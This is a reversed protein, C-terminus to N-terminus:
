KYKFKINKILQKRFDSEFWKELIHKQKLFLDISQLRKMYDKESISFLYDLLDSMSKYYKLNIFCSEPIFESINAAGSYIPVSRAKLCDFLKETIYGPAIANEICFVYKFNSLVEIKKNEPIEGKYVKYKRFGFINEKFSFPDRKDWGRGLLTFDINKHTEFYEVIDIRKKYNNQRYINMLSLVLPSSKKSLLMGLFKRKVKHNNERYNNLGIELKPIFFKNYKEGNDEITLFSDSWTYIKRFYKHFIKWHNFPNIIPSEFVYLINKSPHKLMELWFKIEWPYPIDAFIYIDGEKDKLDLTNILIGDKKLFERLGIFPNVGINKYFINNDFFLKSSFPKLYVLM